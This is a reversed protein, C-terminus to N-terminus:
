RLPTIPPHDGADYGDTPPPVHNCNKTLLPSVWRHYNSGLEQLVATVNYSPAYKTSETRPYSIYGHSYLEEAVKM